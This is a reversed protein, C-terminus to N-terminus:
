MHRLWPIAHLLQQSPSRNGINTGNHWVTPHRRSSVTAGTQAGMTMMMTETMTVMMTQTVTATATITSQDQQQGSGQGYGGYGGGGGGSGGGQGGYQGSGQGGSGQGGSGWGGSGGNGSGYQPVAWAQALCVAVAGLTSLSYLSPMTSTTKGSSSSIFSHARLASNALLISHVVSATTFPLPRNLVCEASTSEFQHPLTSIPFSLIVNPSTSM